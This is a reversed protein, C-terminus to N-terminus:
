EVVLVKVLLILINQRIRRRLLDIFLALCNKMPAYKLNKKALKLSISRISFSSPWERPFLLIRRKCDPLNWNLIHPM